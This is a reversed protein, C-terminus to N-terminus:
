PAEERYAARVTAHVEGARNEDGPVVDSFRPSSSLRELFLDYASARRATVTMHVDLRSGYKLDLAELRVEPPLLEALDAVIRPPPAEVTLWAQTAISDRRVQAELSRLRATVADREARLAAVRGRAQGVDRWADWALGAAVAFSLAGAIFLAWDRPSPRRRRPRSSFDRV